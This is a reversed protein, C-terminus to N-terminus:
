HILVMKRTKAWKGDDISLRYFYIGSSVERGLDDRGDWVISYEGSDLEGRVLTRVRQGLLNYIVLKVKRGSSHVPSPSSPITFSITTSPNFPNPTNQPLAFCFPVRAGESEVATFPVIRIKGASKDLVPVEGALDDRLAVEKLMIEGESGVEASANVGLTIDLLAGTGETIGTPNSMSIRVEGEAVHETTLSFARSSETTRVDLVSLSESPYTFVMQAEAVGSANVVEVPISLTDGASASIDPLSLKVPLALKGGPEAYPGGYIGMDNRSGDPDNYKPDPDGANVCPSGAKLHFDGAEPDSFMPDANLDGEGSSCGSHDTGNNWFLNYSSQVSSTEDSKVGTGNDWIINNEVLASSPSSWSDSLIATEFGRIINNIVLLSSSASGRVGWISRTNGELDNNAIIPQSSDICQIGIAQEGLRIQNNVILPNSTECFLATNTAGGFGEVGVLLRNGAIIPDSVNCWIGTGGEQVEILNEEIRVPSALSGRCDIGRGMLGGTGIIRNRMIVPSSAICDITSGGGFRGADRYIEFGSIGGSTVNHFVVAGMDLPDEEVRIKSVLPGSGRLFVGEKMTIRERYIGAAVQITDGTSAAAMAEGITDFPRSWSGNGKGSYSQDVYIFRESPGREIVVFAGDTISKIEIPLGAGDNLLIERLELPCAEGESVSTSVAFVIEAIAGRGGELETESSLTIGMTGGVDFRHALLFGSTLETTRASLPVLLDPDYSLEIVAEALGAANDLQVQLTLTDGAAGSVPPIMVAVKPHYAGIRIPDPGGYAGMDNRTGDLDNWAPAPNGADRCPSDPRLRFDGKDINVFLRFFLPDISIESAGPEGEFRGELVKNYSSDISTEFYPGEIIWIAKNGNKSVLINNYLRLSTSNYSRIAPGAHEWRGVKDLFLTNNWVEGNMYELKIGWAVDYIINNSITASSLGSSLHSAFDHDESNIGYVARGIMNRAITIPGGTSQIAAGSTYPSTGTNLIINDSITCGSATRITPWVRVTQRITFGRISADSAGTVVPRKPEQGVIECVDAGAGILEVGKKLAINETYTGPAVHIRDKYHAAALAERITRFPNGQSGNGGTSVADVYWEKAFPTASVENSLPSENLSSDIASICYYYTQWINVVSDRFTTETGPVEYVWTSDYMGEQTTRYIRYGYLDRDRNPEWSLEVGLYVSTAKFPTPTQPPISDISRFSLTVDKLVPMEAPDKTSFFARYQLYRDGDHLSHIEEEGEPGFDGSLDTAPGYWPAEEIGELTKSTRIKFRVSGPDSTGDLTWSLREFHVGGPGTDFVESTFTGESVPAYEWESVYTDYGGYRGGRWRPWAIRLRGDDRWLVDPTDPHGPAVYVNWGIPLARHDYYQAFVGGKSWAIVFDGARNCDLDGYLWGISAQSNKDDVQFPSEVANGNDMYFRQAWLHSETQSKDRREGWAVICHGIHDSAAASLWGARDVLKINEGLRKGQLDYHQGYIPGDGFRSEPYWWVVWYGNNKDATIKLGGTHSDASVTNVKQNGGIPSGSAAYFQVWVGAYDHVPPWVVAFAGDECMAYTIHQKSVEGETENVRFVEGIPDDRASYRQAYLNGDKNHLRLYNGEGDFSARLPITNDMHDEVVKRMPHVFTLAGDGIDRVVVNQLTGHGFDETSTQTWTKVESAVGQTSAFAIILTAVLALSGCERPM